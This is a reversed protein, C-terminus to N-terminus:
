ARKRHAHAAQLAVYLLWTSLSLGTKKATATLLRKQAETVRIFLAKNKRAAKRQTPKKTAM